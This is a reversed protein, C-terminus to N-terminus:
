LVVSGSPGALFGWRKTLTSPQIAAPTTSAATISATFVSSACPATPLVTTTAPFIAYVDNARNLLPDFRIVFLYQNNMPVGMTALQETTGRRCLYTSEQKTLPIASAV